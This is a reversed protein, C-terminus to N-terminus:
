PAGKYCSCVPLSVGKHTLYPELDIVHGEECAVLLLRGYGSLILPRRSVAPGATTM